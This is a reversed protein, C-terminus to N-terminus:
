LSVLKGTFVDVVQEDGFAARMEFKEEDSYGYKQRRQIYEQIAIRQEVKDAEISNVAIQQDIYGAVVFDAIIDTPPINDSSFWRVVPGFSANTEDIYFDAKTYKSM